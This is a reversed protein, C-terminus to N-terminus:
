MEKAQGLGQAKASSVIIQIRGIISAKHGLEKHQHSRSIALRSVLSGLQVLHLGSVFLVAIFALPLCFDDEIVTLEVARPTAISPSLPLISTSSVSSYLRLGSM